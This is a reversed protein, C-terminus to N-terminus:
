TVPKLIKVRCDIHSFPSGHNAALDEVLNLVVYSTMIKTLSAVQRCETECKGFLVGGKKRDLIVWNHASVYPQPNEMLLKQTLLHIDGSTPRPPLMIEEQQKVRTKVCSSYKSTSSSTLNPAFKSTVRQTANVRQQKQQSVQRREPSQTGFSSIQQM